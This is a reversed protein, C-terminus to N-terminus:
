VVQPPGPEDDRKKRRIEHGSLVLLDFLLVALILLGSAGVVLSIQLLSGHFLHIGLYQVLAGALIALFYIVKEKIVYYNVFYSVVAFPIFLFAYVPLISEMGPYRGKFVFDALFGSAVWLFGAYALLVGLLFVLAKMNTRAMNERDKSMLPLMVFSVAQAIFFTAKGLLNVISYVGSGDPFYHRVLVPDLYTIFQFAGVFLFSLLFAKAFKKRNLPQAPHGQATIGTRWEPHVSLGRLDWVVIGFSFVQGALLGWLVGFYHATVYVLPVGVAFKVLIGALFYVTYVTFRERSQVISVFPMVLVSLPVLSFLLLFTPTDGVHLYSKLVPILVVLAAILVALGAAVILFSDRLHRRLDAWKKQHVQVSFERSLVYMLATAPLTVIMFVSILPYVVGYKEPGLMRGVAVNFLFNVFGGAVSAASILTSSMLIRSSFVKRLLKGIM